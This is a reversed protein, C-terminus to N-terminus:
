YYYYGACFTWKGPDLTKKKGKRVGKVKKLFSSKSIDEGKANKYYWIDYEGMDENHHRYALLRYKGKKVTYFSYEVYGHYTTSLVLSKSKKYSTMNLNTSDAELMRSIKGNKYTYIEFTGYSEGAPSYDVLLEPVKDGYIDTIKYSYFESNSYIKQLKKNYLKKAKKTKKAVSAANVRSQETPAANALVMAFVFLMFLFVTNKFTLRHKLM